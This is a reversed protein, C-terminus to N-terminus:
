VDDSKDQELLQRANKTGEYRQMLFVVLVGASYVALRLYENGPWPADLGGDHAFTYENRFKSFGRAAEGTEKEGEAISQMAENMKEVAGSLGKCLILVKKQMPAELGLCQIARQYKETFKLFTEDKGKKAGNLNVSNDDLVSQCVSDVVWSARSLAARPDTPLDDQVSRWEKAVEPLGLRIATAELDRAFALGIETM